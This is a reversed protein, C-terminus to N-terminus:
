CDRERERKVCLCVCMYIYGVIFCTGPKWNTRWLNSTFTAITLILSFVFPLPSLALTNPSYPIRFTRIITTTTRTYKSPRDLENILDDAELYSAHVM